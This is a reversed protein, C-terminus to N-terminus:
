GKQELTFGGGGLTKKKGGESKEGNKKTHAHVGRLVEV